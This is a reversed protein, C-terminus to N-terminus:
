AKIEQVLLTVQMLGAFFRGGTYGNFRLTGAVGPGARVTITQTSVSGPVFEHQLAITRLFNATDVSADTVAIANAAGNVFIAAVIDNINSTTGAGNLSIRLKNTTTKPAIAVSIIQTGEGVQPITDDLPIVATLNANAIYSGFVSNVVSGVPSLSGAAALANLITTVSQGSRYRGGSLWLMLEANLQQAPDCVPTLEQPM